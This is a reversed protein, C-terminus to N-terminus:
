LPKGLSAQQQPEPPKLAELTAKHKDIHMQMVQTQMKYKEIEMEMARMKMDMM